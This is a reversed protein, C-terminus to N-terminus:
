TQSSSPPQDGDLRDRVASGVTSAVEAVRDAVFPAAHNRVLETADTVRAQVPESSWVSRARARIQEYRKRGARAGLVYGTGFGVVFLLKGM